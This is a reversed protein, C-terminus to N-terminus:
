AKVFQRATYDIRHLLCRIDNKALYEDVAQRAGKWHGYDDITVVGGGAVRPYLHEMEHMTSSYWDTDLRLYAIQAPASGPLTTEVPGQVFHLCAADYGTSALNARVESLSAECWGKDTPKRKTAEAYQAAPKGDMDLDMVDPVTMGEFTDFLYIPRTAGLHKLTLAAAMMQGGKWVGCEVIAGPIDNDVVYQVADMTALVREPGTMSFRRAREYIEAQWDLMDPLPAGARHSRLRRMLLKLM